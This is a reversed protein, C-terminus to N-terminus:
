LGLLVIAGSGVVTGFAYGVIPHLKHDLSADTMIIVLLGVSAIGLYGLLQLVYFM